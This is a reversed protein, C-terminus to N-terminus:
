WVGAVGAPAYYNPYRDPDPPTPPVHGLLIPALEGWDELDQVRDSSGLSVGNVHLQPLTLSSGEAKLM